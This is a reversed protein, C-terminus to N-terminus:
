PENLRIITHINQFEIDKIIKAESLNIRQQEMGLKAQQMGIKQQGLNAGIMTKMADGIVGAGGETQQISNKLNELASVPDSFVQDAGQSIAQKPIGYVGVDGNGLDTQTSLDGHLQKAMFPILAKNLAVKDKEEKEKEKIKADAAKKRLDYDRDAELQRRKEADELSKQAARRQLGKSAGSAAGGVAALIKAWTRAGM